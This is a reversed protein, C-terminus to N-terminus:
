VCPPISLPNNRDRRIIITIGHNSAACRRPPSLRKRVALPKLQPKEQTPKRQTIWSGGVTGLVLFHARNLIRFQRYPCGHTHITKGLKGRLPGKISRCVSAAEPGIVAPITPISFQNFSVYRFESIFCKCCSM